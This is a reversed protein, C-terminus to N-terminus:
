DITLEAVCLKHDFRTEIIKYNNHKINKTTLIYDIQKDKEIENKYMELEEIPIKLEASILKLNYGRKIIKKIKEKYEQNDM